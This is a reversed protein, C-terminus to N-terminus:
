GASRVLAVVSCAEDSFIPLRDMPSVPFDMAMAAGGSILSVGAWSILAAAHSFVASAGAAAAAAWRSELRERVSYTCRSKGDKRNGYDLQFICPVCGRAIRSSGSILNM